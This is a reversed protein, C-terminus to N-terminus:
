VNAPEESSNPRPTEAWTVVFGSRKGGDPFPADFVASAEVGTRLQRRRASEIDSPRRGRRRRGRHSAQLDSGSPSTFTSALDVSKHALSQLRQRSTIGHSQSSPPTGVDKSSSAQSTPSPPVNMPKSGQSPIRRHSAAYSSLRRQSSTTQAKGSTAELDRLDLASGNSAAM